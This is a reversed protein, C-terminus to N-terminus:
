YFLFVSQNTVRSLSLALAMCSSAKNELMVSWANSLLKIEKLLWIDKPLRCEPRVQLSPARKCVRVGESVPWGVM